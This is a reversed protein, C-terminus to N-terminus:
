DRSGGASHCSRSAQDESMNLADVRQAYRMEYDNSMGRSGCTSRSKSLCLMDKNIDQGRRVGTAGYKGCNHSCCFGSAV